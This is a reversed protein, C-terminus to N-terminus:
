RRAGKDIVERYVESLKKELAELSFEERIRERGKQGMKLRVDANQILYILADALKEKYEELTTMDINIGCDKSVVWSSGGSESSIVPLGCAMADMKVMGGGGRLAPICFIDNEQFKTTLEEKPFTGILKVHDSLQYEDIKEEIKEKLKGKGAMQIIFNRVGREICLRAADVLILPGKSPTLAGAFFIKIKEEAPRPKLYEFKTYDIVLDSIEICKDLVDDPLNKKVSPSSILIKSANRHYLNFKRNKKLSKYFLGRLTDRLAEEKFVQKFGKPTMIAGSVPGVLVPVGFKYVDNYAFLGEPTMCHILKFDAINLDNKIIKRVQHIFAKYTVNYLGFKWCYRRLIPNIEAFSFATNPYEAKLIDEKNFSKTIVHVDAFKAITRVWLDGVAAESGRRPHIHFAIILVRPRNM